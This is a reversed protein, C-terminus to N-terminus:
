PESSRLPPPTTVRRRYFALVRRAGAAVRRERPERHCARAPRPLSNASVRADHPRHRGCVVGKERSAHGFLPTVIRNLTLRRAETSTNPKRRALLVEAKAVIRQTFSGGLM